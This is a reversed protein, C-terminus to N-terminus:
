DLEKFAERVFRSLGRLTQAGKAFAEDDKRLPKLARYKFMKGVNGSQLKSFLNIIYDKKSPNTKLVIGDFTLNVEKGAELEIELPNVNTVDEFVVKFKLPKATAVDSLYKAGFTLNDGTQAVTLSLKYQPADGSSTVTFSGNGSYIRLLYDTETGKEVLITGAKALVPISRIDRYLYKLVNKDQEYVIGTFIDTYRGKPLFTLVRGMQLKKDVPETIPAVILNEGFLYQNRLEKKYLVEAEPYEYYMPRMLPQGEEATRVNLSYLYPVLKARLKLNESVLTEALYGYTWPEKSNLDHSTSHLRMIPNFVAFQVWRTYIEDNREGMHHGGIDHSWWVYGANTANVTFYPIFRLVNWNQASDGSFGLPYRHSGIGAYRSLILPERSELANDLYHYHNLAFLPDLGSLASSKGQQWDIWWFDVGEREYPKHVVSFYANVFSDNTLDFEIDKKLSADLGMAACMDKYMVEFWRIGDRPHLNLTVKLGKEHLKDLFARYDPFLHRNWTYGTWGGSSPNDQWNARKYTTGFETNLDTYHWDMDVTAVSLDIGKKEFTDMVALYETDTYARYRSWWNGFAYEPILPPKGSILYLEKVADLYNHGHAFIYFDGKCTVPRAEFTGDANLAANKTDNHVAVGTKSCIGNNLKIEGFAGDLTRATGKLNGSHRLSFRATTNKLAGYSSDKFTVIGACLTKKSIEFVAKATTITIVKDNESATFDVAFDRFWVSLTAKDCFPAGKELRILRDTLVTIRTDGSVFVQSENAKPSTIPILHKDLM